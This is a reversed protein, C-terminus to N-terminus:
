INEYNNISDVYLIIQSNYDSKLKIPLKYRLKLLLFKIEFM